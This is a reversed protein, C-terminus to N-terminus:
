GSEKRKREGGGGWGRSSFRSLRKKEWFCLADMILCYVRVESYRLAHGETCLGYEKRWTCNNQATWPAKTSEKVEQVRNFRCLLSIVFYATLLDLGCNDIGLETTYSSCAIRLKWWDPSWFRSGMDFSFITVMWNVLDLIQSVISSQYIFLRALFWTEATKWECTIQLLTDGLKIFSQVSIGQKHGQSPCM